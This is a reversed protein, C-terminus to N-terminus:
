RRGRRVVWWEDVVGDFTTSHQRWRLHTANLATIRSHSFAHGQGQQPAFGSQFVCWPADPACPGQPPPGPGVRMEPNGGAGSTVHVTAHPDDYVNPTDYVTSTYDYTPWYREYDHVHGFVAVDVAHRRLLAEVPWGEGNSANTPRCLRPNNHPCASPLGRRAAEAEWGCRPPDAGAAAAACYMPRHAVAVVWPVNDRNAAAAALDADLWAHMAAMHAPGFADPWFFVESNFVAVHFLGVDFSYHLNETAAWGPMRWLARYHSFNAAAEHNGPAVAYPLAASLPEVLRLFAAGRRGQLSALDYGLDGAHVVASFAGSAADAALTPLTLAHGVGLDGVLLLGTPGPTGPVPPPTVRQQPSWGDADTGVRYLFPEGPPLGPGLAVFHVFHAAVGTSPEIFPNSSGCFRTFESSAIDQPAFLAPTAPPAGRARVEVCPPASLPATTSWTVTLAGPEDAFALRRGFPVTSPRPLAALGEPQVAAAAAVALLILSLM